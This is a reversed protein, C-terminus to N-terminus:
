FCGGCLQGIDKRPRSREMVESGRRTQAWDKECLVQLLCTWFVAVPFIKKMDFDDKKNKGLTSHHHVDKVYHMSRACVRCPRQAERTKKVKSEQPRLM